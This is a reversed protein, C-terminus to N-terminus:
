RLYSREREGTERKGECICDRELLGGNERKVEEETNNRNKRPNEERKKVWVKDKTAM